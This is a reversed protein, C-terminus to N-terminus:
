LIDGYVRKLERELELFQPIYKELIRKVLNKAANGDSARGYDGRARSGFLIVKELGHKKALGCIEEIVNKKIGAKEM